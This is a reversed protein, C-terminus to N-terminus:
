LDEDARWDKKTWEASRTCVSCFPLLRNLERFQQKTISQDSSIIRVMDMNVLKRGCETKAVKSM